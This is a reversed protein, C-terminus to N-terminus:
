RCYQQYEVDVSKCITSYKEETYMSRLDNLIYQYCMKREETKLLPHHCFQLAVIYEKEPQGHQVYGVTIGRFCPVRLSERLGHCYGLGAVPDYKTIDSVLISALAKVAQGANEDDEIASVMRFAKPYDDRTAQRLTMAFEYYCIPQFVKEQDRCFALPDDNDLKLGRRQEYFDRATENFVGGICSESENSGSKVGTVKECVNLARTATTQADGDLSPDHPDSMGHGIGHYCNGRAGTKPMDVGLKDCFARALTLDKTGNLLYELFGHFFGYGCYKTKDTVAFPIKRVFLRYAQEGIKHAYGHCSATFSPSSNYLTSILTLAPDIGQKQVTDQVMREWCHQQVAEKDQRGDGVHDCAHISIAQARKSYIFFGCIFVTIIVPILLLRYKLFGKKVM